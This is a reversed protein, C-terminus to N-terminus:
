LIVSDNLNSLVELIGLDLRLGDWWGSVTDELAVDGSNRFVETVVEGAGHAAQAM